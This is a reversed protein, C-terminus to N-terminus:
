QNHSLKGLSIPAVEDNPVNSFFVLCFEVLCLTLPLVSSKGPKLIELNIVKCNKQMASSSNQHLFTRIAEYLLLIKVLINAAGHAHGKILNPFCWGPVQILKLNWLLLGMFSLWLSFPMTFYALTFSIVILSRLGIEKKVWEASSANTSAIM